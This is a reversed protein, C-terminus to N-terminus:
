FLADWADRSTKYDLLARAIQRRRQRRHETSQILAWASSHEGFNIDINDIFQQLATVAPQAESQNMWWNKPDTVLKQLQRNKEKVADHKAQYIQLLEQEQQKLMADVASAQFTKGDDATKVLEAVSFLMLDGFFQREFEDSLEIQQAGKEVGPRFDDALNQAQTRQHLMPLNASAFRAGIEAQVLRGTTPGSMRLRLDGFPIIYKLGEYRVIYNGPYITRAPTLTDFRGAYEFWTKRTLHEGFFFANLRSTFFELCSLHPHEGPLPCRYDYQQTPKEFGFMYAMDHYAAAGSPVTSVRHFSCPQNAALSQMQQLFHIVDDLFNVAMVSPSVPPDGVLKGTLMLTDTQRFIRDITYFYNLAAVTGDGNPTQRNQEFLQDSDVLYYLTRDPNHTMQLMKLYSLNRNAAQGKRYFKERPQTTLISGLQQRQPPPISHLLEYQQQLDVHEVQLGKACFDEAIRKDQAINEAQQSDEAVIVRIKQFVGDKNGGYQYLHCLQFISQLCNQLHDPRDAIPISLIFAYRDDAGRHAILSEQERFLAQYLALNEDFNDGQWIQQELLPYVEDYIKIQQSIETASAYRQQLQARRSPFRSFYKELQPLQM